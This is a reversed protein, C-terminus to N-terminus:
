LRRTIEEKLRNEVKGAEEKLIKKFKVSNKRVFGSMVDDSNSLFVKEIDAKGEDDLDEYMKKLVRDVVLDFIRSGLIIQEETPKKTKSGIM